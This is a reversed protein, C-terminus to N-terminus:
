NGLKESEILWKDDHSKSLVMIKMTTDVLSPSKYSQMFRITAHSADSFTVEPNSITVLISSPKEIRVKRLAKWHALGKGDLVEFDPSYYSFYGELNKNSWDRAWAQITEIVAQTDTGSAHEAEGSKVPEAADSSKQMSITQEAQKSSASIMERSFLTKILVLRTQDKVKSKDLQLAKDYAQSALEAYVDDMNKHAIAYSPHTQIAAQLEDKAKEYQEQDAYIVALNNHPEPLDPYDESLKKFVQIADSTKKEETLILGKLFRGEADKPHKALFADVKQMAAAYQGGKFLKRADRMEDAMAAAGWFLLSGILCSRGLRVFSGIKM